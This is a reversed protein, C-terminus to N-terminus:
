PAKSQAGTNGLISHMMHTHHGSVLFQRSYEAKLLNSDTWFFIPYPMLASLFRVFSYFYGSGRLFLWQYVHHIDHHERDHSM